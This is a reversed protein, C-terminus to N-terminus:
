AVRGVLAEFNAIVQAGLTEPPVQRVLALRTLTEVVWAPENRKGRFPVPALFPADTEVLLRDAPVFRAVERLTDAKPFTLIGALSIFLGLDLASRAEDAGGSFCHVVGRLRGGGAERVVALTDGAAERTHIVVPRNLELALAVQAAFVEQQVDRPAFDYHYDLGLEGLAVAGVRAAARRVFDAAATARGAYTGAHHPHVGVAFQVAPWVAAVQEARALEEDRDAGLICLASRVGATRARTAVAELDAAFAEDALHCHSDVVM